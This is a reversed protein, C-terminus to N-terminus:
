ARALPFLTLLAGNWDKICAGIFDTDPLRDLAGDAAEAGHVRFTAILRKRAHWTNTQEQIHQAM